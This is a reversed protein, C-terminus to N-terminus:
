NTNRKYSIKSYRRQIKGDRKQSELSSLKLNDRMSRAKLDALSEKISESAERMEKLEKNVKDELSKQATTTKLIENKNSNAIKKVVKHKKKLLTLFM